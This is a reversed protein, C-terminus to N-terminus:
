NRPWPKWDVSIVVLEWNTICSFLQYLVAGADCLDPNPDGKTTAKLLALFSRPDDVNM